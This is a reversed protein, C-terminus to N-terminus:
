ALAGPMRMGDAACTSATLRLRGDPVKGFPRWAQDQDLSPLQKV